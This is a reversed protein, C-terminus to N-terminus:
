FLQYVNQFYANGACCIFWAYLSDLQTQHGSDHYIVGSNNYSAGRKDNKTTVGDIGAVNFVCIWMYMYVDISKYMYASEYGSDVRHRRSFWLM